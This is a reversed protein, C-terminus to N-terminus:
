LGVKIGVYAELGVLNENAFDEYEADAINKIIASFEVPRQDIKFSKRLKLDITELAELPDGLGGTTYAEVFAYQASVAFGNDFTHSVLASNSLQPTYKHAVYDIDAPDVSNSLYDYQSARYGFTNAYASSIKLFTKDTPKYFIDIEASETDSEGYNMLRWQPYDIRRKGFGGTKRVELVDTIEEWALRIDVLLKKEFFSGFYGLEVSDIREPDLDSNGVFNLDHLGESNNEYIFYNGQLDYLSPVRYARSVNARITQNESLHVNTALRPSLTWDLKEYKEALAGANLTVINSVKWEVHGFLRTSLRDQKGKGTFYNDSTALDYRLGTGWVTQLDPSLINQNEYEVDFRQSTFDNDFYVLHDGNLGFVDDFGNADEWDKSNHVPGAPDQTLKGGSGSDSSWFNENQRYYSHSFQIVESQLLNNSITIRYNEFFSLFKSDDEPVPMFQLNDLDEYGVGLKGNILGFEFQHNNGNYDIHNLHFDLSIAKLGDNYNAVKQGVDPVKSPNSDHKYLFYNYFVNNSEVGASLAYKFSDTEGSQKLHLRHLDRQHGYTYGVEDNGPNAAAFTKINIVGSFSNAGYAAANPGRVVEISEIDDVTIPLTYWLTGGFMPEYVSRGNLMVHLRTNHENSLGHYTVTCDNGHLCGVQFGPVLRMLEVPTTASSAEIMDRTIITVSAPINKIEQKLRTVSSSYVIDEALFDDENLDAVELAYSSFSIGSVSLALLTKKFKKNHNM